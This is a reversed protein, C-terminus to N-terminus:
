AFWAEMDGHGRSVCRATSANASSFASRPGSLYACHSFVSVRNRCRMARISFAGSAASIANNPFVLSPTLIRAAPSSQCAPSLMTVGSASNMVLWSAQSCSASRPTSNRRTSMRPETSASSASRSRISSRVRRSVTLATCHSSPKRRSRAVRPAAQRSRSATNKTSAMCCNPASGISTSAQPMSQRAAPDWLHCIPGSPM